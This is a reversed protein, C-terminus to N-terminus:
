VDRQTQREHGARRELDLVAKQKVQALESQLNELM